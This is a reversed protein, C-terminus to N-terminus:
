EDRHEIPHYEFKSSDSFRKMFDCVEPWEWILIKKKALMLMNNMAYAVHVPETLYLMVGRTFLVDWRERNKRLFDLNEVAIDHQFVRLGPKCRALMEASVDCGEVKFDGELEEMLRGWGCGIELVSEPSVVQLAARVEDVTPNAVLPKTGFRSQREYAGLGYSGAWLVRYDRRSTTGQKSAFVNETPRRFLIQWSRHRLARIGRGILRRAIPFKEGVIESAARERLRAAQWM